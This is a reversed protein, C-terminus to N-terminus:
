SVAKELGKFPRSPSLQTTVVTEEHCLGQNGQYSDETVYPYFCNTTVLKGEGGM